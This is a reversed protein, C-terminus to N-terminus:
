RLAEPIEFCFNKCKNEMVTKPVTSIERTEKDQGRLIHWTLAREPCGSTYQCVFKVDLSTCQANSTDPLGNYLDEAFPM